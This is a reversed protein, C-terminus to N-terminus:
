FCSCVKHPVIPQNFLFFEDELTDASFKYKQFISDSLHSPINYFHFLLSLIRVKLGKKLKRIVKEEEVYKSECM